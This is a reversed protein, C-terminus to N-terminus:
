PTDRATAGARPRRAAPAPARAPATRNDGGGAATALVALLRHHHEREADLLQEARVARDREATALQGAAELRARYHEALAERERVADDRAQRVQDCAGAEAQRARALEAEAAHVLAAAREGARDREAQATAAAEAAQRSARAQAAEVDAHAGAIAEALERRAQAAAECARRAEGEAAERGRDAAEATELAAVMEQEAEAARAEATIARAEARRRAAEAEALQVAVVEPDLAAVQGRALTSLAGAQGILATLAGLPDGAQESSVAVGGAAPRGANHFRRSCADGCFLRIRGRGSWPVPNGCGPRKCVRLASEGAVGPGLAPGATVETM